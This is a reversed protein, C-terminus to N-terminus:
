PEEEFQEIMERIQRIEEGSLKRKRTFAALFSPLSGGFSGDIFRCGQLSQYEERSILAEVQGNENCLVGKGELRKLITYTTSKKWGLQQACLTVLEGSSLPARQWVLEAVYEEAETLNQEM